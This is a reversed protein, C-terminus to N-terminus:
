TAARPAMLRPWQREVAPWAVAMPDTRPYTAVTAEQDMAVMHADIRAATRESMPDRGQAAWKVELVVLSLASYLWCSHGWARCTEPYIERRGELALQFSAFGTQYGSLGLDSHLLDPNPGKRGLRPM